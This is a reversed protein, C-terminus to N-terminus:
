QDAFATYGEPPEMNEFLTVYITFKQQLALEVAHPNNVSECSFPTLAEVLLNQGAKPPAGPSQSSGVGCYPPELCGEEMSYTWSIPSPGQGLCWWHDGGAGEYSFFLALQQSTAASGQSWKMEGVIHSVNQGKKFKFLFDYKDEGLVDVPLCAGTLIAAAVSCSFYGEFPGRREFRAEGQLPVPRLEVVLRAEGNPPVEVRRTLSDFGLKQVAVDYTAPPLNAFRVAGQSDTTGALRLSTLGVDAGEIPTVSDDLVTVLLTGADPVPDGSATILSSSSTVQAPKGGGSCGAVLLTLAVFSGLLLRNTAM